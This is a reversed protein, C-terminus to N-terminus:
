LIKKYGDRLVFLLFVWWFTCSEVITEKPTTKHIGFTQMYVSQHNLSLYQFTLTYSSFKSSFTSETTHMLTM